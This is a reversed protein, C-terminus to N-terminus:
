KELIIKREPYSINNKRFEDTIKFLFQSKIKRAASMETILLRVTFEFAYDGIESFLVVSEERDINDQEAFCSRVIQLVKDPEVEHPVSFKVEMFRRNDAITWNKLNNSTLNSNPILIDSGDYTSVMTARLGIERVMGTENGVEVIDGELFPREFAIVLGSILNSIVNQLGFGIGVGLAGLFITFSTLPIGSIMLAVVFGVIFILLRFLLLFGGLNSKKGSSNIDTKTVLSFRLFSATAFSLYVFLLFLLISEFTFGFSAILRKEKLFDMINAVILDFFNMNSLYSVILFIYALFTLLSKIKAYVYEDNIKISSNGKNSFYIIISLYDLFTYIAVRLIMSLVILSYAALIISKGLMYNGWIILFWGIVINIGLFVVVFNVTKPLELNVQPLHRFMRYLPILLFISLSYILRGTFTPTTFFNIIYLLIYSGIIIFFVKKNIKPYLKLTFMSVTFTLGIFIFDLFAPVPHVFILPAAALGMILSTTKPNKDLFKLHVHKLLKKKRRENNFIRIPILCIMFVLARFIIIRWLSSEGYFKLSTITQQFSEAIVQWLKLSYSGPGSNWIPGLERKFLSSEKSQLFAIIDNYFSFVESNFEYIYNEITVNRKLAEAVIKESTQQRVKLASVADAFSTKIISDSNKQFEAIEKGITRIEQAKSTLKENNSHIKAQWTNIEEYISIVEMKMNIISRINVSLDDRYFSSQLISIAIHQKNLYNFLSASDLEFVKYNFYIDNLNHYCENLWSEPNSLYLPQVPSIVAPEATDKEDQGFVMFIGATLLLFLVFFFKSNNSM